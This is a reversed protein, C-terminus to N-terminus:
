QCCVSERVFAKFSAYMIIETYFGRFTLDPPNVARIRCPVSTKHSTKNYVTFYLMECLTPCFYFARARNLIHAHATLIIDYQM